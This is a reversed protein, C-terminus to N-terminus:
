EEGVRSCGERTRVSNFYSTKFTTGYMMVHSLPTRMIDFCIGMYDYERALDLTAKIGSLSPFVYEGQKRDSFNSLLTSKNQLIEYGNKRATQLATDITMYSQNYAAAPSLDIFAKASEGRCAFDALVRREGDEFSPPNKTAYKPYYIISGDAYESFEIPSEPTIETILILDCGIMLKRLIMIFALFNEASDNLDCANLVVGKYGGMAALKILEEAYKTTNDNSKFREKYRDYVRVLPIKRKETALRVAEGDDFIRKIRVSDAAASGFTVYTLFPLMRSLAEINCGKYFYGNAVAMGIPPDSYKLALRDGTRLGNEKIWPNNTFIDNKRVGFRLAIREVSDGPQVTYCRTPTLVLLEEGVAPEGEVIGNIRRLNDEWVGYGEAIAKISENNRRIHLHM